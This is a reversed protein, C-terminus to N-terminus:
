HRYDPCGHGRCCFLLLNRAPQGALLTSACGVYAPVLIGLLPLCMLLSVCWSGRWGLGMGGEGRGRPSVPVLRVAGWAGWGPWAGTYDRVRSRQKICKVAADLLGEVRARAADKVLASAEDDALRAGQQAAKLAVLFAKDSQM